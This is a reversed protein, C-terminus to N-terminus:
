RHPLILGLFCGGGGGGGGGGETQSEEPYESLPIERTTAYKFEHWNHFALHVHQDQDVAIASGMGAGDAYAYGWEGLINTKYYIRLGIGLRFAM